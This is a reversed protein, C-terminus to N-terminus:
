SEPVTSQIIFLDAGEEPAEAQRVLVPHSM